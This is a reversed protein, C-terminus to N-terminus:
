NVSRSKVRIQGMGPIQHAQLNNRRRSSPPTTKPPRSSSKPSSHRSACDTASLLLRLSSLPEFQVASTAPTRHDPNPPCTAIVFIPHHSHIMPNSTITQSESQWRIEETVSGGPRGVKDKDCRVQMIVLQEGPMVRSVALNM